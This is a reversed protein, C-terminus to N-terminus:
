LKNEDNQKENSTDSKDTDPPEQTTQIESEVVDGTSYYEHPSKYGCKCTWRFGFQVKEMSIFGYENWMRFMQRNCDPCTRKDKLGTLMEPVKISEVGGPQMKDWRKRDEIKNSYILEADTWTGGREIHNCSGCWWEWKYLVPRTSQTAGTFRQIMFAGCTPCKKLDIFQNKNKKKSKGM